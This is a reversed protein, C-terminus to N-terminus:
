WGKFIQLQVKSQESFNLERSLIFFLDFSKTNGVELLSQFSVCLNHSSALAIDQFIKNPVKKQRHGIHGLSISEDEVKLRKSHAFM